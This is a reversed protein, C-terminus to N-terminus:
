RSPNPAHPLLSHTSSPGMDEVPTPGGVGRGAAAFPDDIGLYDQDQRINEKTSGSRARGNSGPAGGPEIRSLPASSQRLNGLGPAGSPPSSGVNDPRRAGMDGPRVLGGISNGSRYGGVPGTGGLSPNVGVAGGPRALAGGRTSGPVQAAAPMCMGAAIVAASIWRWHSDM